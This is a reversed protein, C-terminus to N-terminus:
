ALEPPARLRYLDAFLFNIVPEIYKCHISKDARVQNLHIETESLLDTFFKQNKDCPIYKGAKEATLDNLVYCHIPFGKQHEGGSKEAPCSKNQDPFSDTIHHDHPVAFHAILAIGALWFFFKSKYRLIKRM